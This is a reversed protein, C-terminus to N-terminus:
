RRRRAGIYGYATCSGSFVTQTSLYVTTTGSLNLRIMGIPYLQLGNATMTNSVAVYAGKNPRTPVTASATNIWSDISTQAGGGSSATVASGWVDWDGTTLSISTINKAVNSTLTVASGSQIESEILEGVSGAAANDNTTTGIIGTFTANAATINANASDANNRFSIEGDASSKMRSRSSFVFSNAAGAFVSGTSTLQSTSITSTLVIATTSLVGTSPNFSYKTSSVYAPLNGTNATVWIPYMSTNTTVDNTVAISTSSAANGTCSASSGSANGTLNATITGASFNGSADRAVLTSATNISVAGTATVNATSGTLNALATNAPIQILKDFTISNTGISGNNAIYARVAKQSAVLQDSNSSLTIDTDIPVGANYGQSM